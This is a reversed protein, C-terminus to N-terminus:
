IKEFDAIFSLMEVSVFTYSKTMKKVLKSRAKEAKRTAIGEIFMENQKM